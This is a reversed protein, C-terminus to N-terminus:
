LLHSIEVSLYKESLGFSATRSLLPESPSTKGNLSEVGNESFKSVFKRIYCVFCIEIFVYSLFENGKM